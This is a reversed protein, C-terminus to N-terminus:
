LYHETIRFVQIRRNYTDCVYLTNNQDIFIGSPLWFEGFKTGRGGVTLLFEGKANFLQINDFLSDVVYIVGDKDATVGKPMALDGSGDGHHGFQGLFAGSEDFMQIRFNLSDTVYLIGASSLFVHTPFNFQGNEEGHQGFSFAFDGNAQFADVRHQLTDVVYLLKKGPSYALGTPRKLNDAGAKRISFLFSTDSGFALVAGSSDSVFLRLNEDFIVGVPSSITERDHGSLRTYYNKAPIFLHVCKRGMDAVAIRGDSGTAVAVPLLFLDSEKQNNGAIVRFLSSGGSRAFGHFAEVYTVKARGPLFPWQLGTQPQVSRISYKTACGNCFFILVFLLLVGNKKLPKTVGADGGALDNHMTLEAPTVGANCVM